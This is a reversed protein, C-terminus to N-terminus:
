HLNFPARRKKSFNKLEIWNLWETTDSEKCSWPSCCALGGQGDGVGTAQKIEHGSLWHYWEVMEDETAEKEEQRWDKGADPDEGTLWSMADLPWLIPAEAEADTRVIFICAQNGKVNVPKVEKCDWPSELAKGLVVTQFCWNKLAWDEEHDLEWMWLPYSPKVSRDM